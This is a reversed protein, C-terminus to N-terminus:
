AHRPTMTPRLRLSIACARLRQAAPVEFLRFSVVALSLTMTTVLALSLGPVLRDCGLSIVFEMIPRHFLYFGYSVEGLLLVPTVCLVRLAKSRAVAVCLLLTTSAINIPDLWTRTMWGGASLGLELRLAPLNLAFLALAAIGVLTAHRGGFVRVFMTTREISALAGGILFPLAHFPLWPGRLGTALLGLALALAGVAVIGYVALPRGSRATAPWLLVFALYYHIEVPISWLEFPARVLLLAEALTAGELQYRWGAAGVVTLVASAALVALYLPVVRAVRRLAYGAVADGTPRVGGYLSAMLYGSLMFFLMVGNQGLGNGLVGPLLGDNAAHSVFVTLAAIARVATLCENHRM